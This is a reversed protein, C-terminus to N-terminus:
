SVAVVLLAPPSAAIVLLYVIVGIVSAKSALLMALAANRSRLIILLPAVILITLLMYRLAVVGTQAPPIPRGAREWQDSYGEVTFHALFFSALFQAAVIVVLDNGIRPAMTGLAGVAVLFIVGTFIAGPSMTRSLMEGALGGFPTGTRAM